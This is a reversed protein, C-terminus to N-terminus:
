YGEVKATVTIDLGKRSGTVTSSASEDLALLSNQAAKATVPGTSVDSTRNLVKTTIDNSDDHPRIRLKLETENEFLSAVKITTLTLMGTDYDISGVNAVVTGDSGVLNVTGTGSYEPAVVEKNPVDQFKVKYTVDSVIANFWTSHLERPQVRSNFACVYKVDKNLEPLIRKQITPTLNVSLISPSLDKIIEIVRAYYFNSNLKNLNASFYNRIATSVDESLRGSSLSTTNPDYTVGVKLGIYTYVPDVFETLVSVPTRPELISTLINDKETQTIIQGAAPNLSVFVKGYIPPDNDEGGWVSVSQINPNSATILTKYDESTVAREKTQNYLPATKRISDISEKEAGGASPELVNNNPNITRTEGAGTLTGPVQFTLCGNAAAGLTVLYDIRVINGVELKKGFINDGFRITYNGDTAEEIFFARTTSTLDVVNTNPLFTEISLDTNSKQVRVRLTTTDINSNPITLPGSLSDADIIYNNAVRTGQKVEVSNFSFVDVGNITERTATVDAAAYFNFTNLDLSSVFAQDRSLTYTSSTYSSAPTIRLDVKTSSCKRSKPTYGLAKALSVVSSRKIASDLFSENALMHALIANYHTNYALADILVSLASGEFDYDSFESQSSMFQRLSQKINDFDLETVNLQAM